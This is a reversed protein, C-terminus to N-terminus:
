RGEPRDRAKERGRYGVLPGLGTHTRFNVYAQDAQQYRAGRVVPWGAAVNLETPPELGFGGDPGKLVYSGYNLPVVTLQIHGDGLKTVHLVATLEYTRRLEIDMGTQLNRKIIPAVKAPACYLHEILLKPYDSAVALTVVGSTVFDSAALEYSDLITFRGTIYPM